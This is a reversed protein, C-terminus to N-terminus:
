KVTGGRGNIPAPAPTPAELAELLIILYYAPANPLSRMLFCVSIDPLSSFLLKIMTSRCIIMSESYARLSQEQFLPPKTRYTFHPTTILSGM